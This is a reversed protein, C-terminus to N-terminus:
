QGPACSGNSYGRSNNGRSGVRSNLAVREYADARNHRRRLFTDLADAITPWLFGSNNASEINPTNPM